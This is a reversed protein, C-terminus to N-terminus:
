REGKFWEPAYVTMAHSGTIVNFIPGRGYALDAFFLAAMNFANSAFLNGVSPDFAALCV